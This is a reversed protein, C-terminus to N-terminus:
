LIYCLRSYLCSCLIFVIYKTSLILPLYCGASKSGLGPYQNLIIQSTYFTAFPAEENRFPLERNAQNVKGPHEEEEWGQLGGHM